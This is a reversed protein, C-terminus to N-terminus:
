GAISMAISELYSVLVRRESATTGMEVLRRAEAIRATDADSAIFSILRALDQQRKRLQQRTM